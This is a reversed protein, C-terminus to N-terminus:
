VELWFVGSDKRSPGLTGKVEHNPPQNARGVVLGFADTENGRAFWQVSFEGATLNKTATGSTFSLEKGDVAVTQMAGSKKFTFQPVRSEERAVTAWHRLRVRLLIESAADLLTRHPTTVYRYGEMDSEPRGDPGSVPVVNPRRRM